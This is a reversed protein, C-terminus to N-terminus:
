FFKTWSYEPRRRVKEVFSGGLLLEDICRVVYAAVTFWFSLLVPVHM